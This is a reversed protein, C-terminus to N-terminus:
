ELIGYLIIISKMENNNTLSSTRAKENADMRDTSGNSCNFDTKSREETRWGNARTGATYAWVTSRKKTHKANRRQNANHQPIAAAAPVPNRIVMVALLVLVLVLDVLVFGADASLRLRGKMTALSDRIM